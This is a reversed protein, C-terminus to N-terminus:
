SALRYTSISAGYSSRYLTRRPVTPSSGSSRQSRGVRSPEDARLATALQLDDGTGNMSRHYTSGQRAAALCRALARRPRQLVHERWPVDHSQWRRPAQSHRRYQREDPPQTRPLRVPRKSEDITVRRRVEIDPNRKELLIKRTDELTPSASVPIELPDTYPPMFSISVIHRQSRSIRLGHETLARSHPESLTATRCTSRTGCEGQPEHDPSLLRM